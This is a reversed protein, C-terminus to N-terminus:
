GNAEVISVSDGLRVSGGQLVTCAVGGRWNPTLAVKLGNYQEEM